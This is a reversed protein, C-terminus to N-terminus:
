TNGCRRPIQESAKYRYRLSSMPAIGPRGDTSDTGPQPDLDIRLEDPRDVDDRRVPWPDARIRRWM